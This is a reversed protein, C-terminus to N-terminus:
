HHKCSNRRMLVLLNKIRNKERRLLQNEMIQNKKNFHLLLMKFTSSVFDPIFKETRVRSCDLVLDFHPSVNRTSVCM